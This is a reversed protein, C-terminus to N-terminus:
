GEKEEERAGLIAGQAAQGLGEWITHPLPAPCAAWFWAKFEIAAPSSWERVPPVLARLGDTWVDM